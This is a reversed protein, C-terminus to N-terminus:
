NNECILSNTKTEIKVCYIYEHRIYIVAFIHLEANILWKEM